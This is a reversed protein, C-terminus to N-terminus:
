AVDYLKEKTPKELPLAIRGRALLFVGGLILALAGVISVWGSLIFSMLSFAALSITLLTLGATVLGRRHGSSAALLALGVALPELTWLIAWSQWLGTLACFQFLLGNVGIIIAPIMFWIIRMFVATLLFGVALAIVVLPWFHAWVGGWGFLSGWLLLSGVALVPMGPIFLPKFGRPLIVATGVLGLGVAGVLMPWLRWLGFEWGLMPLITTHLLALGGLAMLLIGSLNTARKEM